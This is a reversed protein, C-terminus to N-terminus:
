SLADMYIGLFMGVGLALLAPASKRYFELSRSPTGTYRKKVLESAGVFSCIGGGSIIILVAILVPPKVDTQDVAQAIALVGGLTLLSLSTLHKFYDYLLLERDTEDVVQLIPLNSDEDSM